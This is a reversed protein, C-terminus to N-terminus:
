ILMYDVFALKRTFTWLTTGFFFLSLRQSLGTYSTNNGVGYFLFGTLIGLSCVEIVRLVNM